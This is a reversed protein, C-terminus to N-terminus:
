SLGGVKFNETLIGAEGALETVIQSEEDTTCDLAISKKNRNANVFYASMESVDGNDGQLFPPGWSRTEDGSGPHEIKWIEM